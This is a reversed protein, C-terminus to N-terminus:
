GPRVYPRPGSSRVSRGALGELALEAAAIQTTISERVSQTLLATIARKRETQPSMRVPLGITRRGIKNGPYQNHRRGQVQAWM